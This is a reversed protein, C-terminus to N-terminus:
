LYELRSQNIHGSFTKRHDYIIKWGKNKERLLLVHFDRVSACMQCRMDVLLPKNGLGWERGGYVSSFVSMYLLSAGRM